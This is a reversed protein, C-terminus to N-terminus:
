KARIRRWHRERFRLDTLGTEESSTTSRCWAAPSAASGDLWVSPREGGAAAPLVEARRRRRYRPDAHHVIRYPPPPRDAQHAPPEGGTGLAAGPVRVSFEPDTTGFVGLFSLPALQVDCAAISKYNRLGIRTVPRPDAVRNM